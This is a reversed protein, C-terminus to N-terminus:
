LGRCHESGLKNGKDAKHHPGAVPFPIDPLGDCRQDSLSILFPFEDHDVIVGVLRSSGDFDNLGKGFGPNMVISKGILMALIRGRSAIEAICHAARWDYGNSIRVVDRIWPPCFKNYISQLVKKGM